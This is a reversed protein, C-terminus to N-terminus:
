QFISNYLDYITNKYICFNYENCKMLEVNKMSEILGIIISDLDFSSNDIRNGINNWSVKDSM